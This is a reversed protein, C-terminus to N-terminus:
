NDAVYKLKIYNEARRQKEKLRKYRDSTIFLKGISPININLKLAKLEEDSLDEKLPLAVIYEKMARWYARYIKNVLNKDLGLEESVKTIAESYVM